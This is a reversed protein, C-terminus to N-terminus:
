QRYNQIYSDRPMGLGRVQQRLRVADERTMQGGATVLYPGGHGSPTFVEANLGAHKANVSQAMKEADEQRAYTYLIVRWVPRNGTHLADKAPLASERPAPATTAITAGPNPPRATSKRTAADPPTLTRTEWASGRSVPVPATPASSATEQKVTTRKPRAFWILALVVLLGLAAYIWTRAPTSRSKARPAIRSLLPVEALVPPTQPHAPPQSQVRPAPRGSQLSVVDALKCRTQPDPDLCRGVVTAFPVPLQAADQVFNPGCMRQTLTEFLTAGLCWIDAAPTVNVSNEPAVYRARTLEVNPTTNIRRICVTSLKISEGMALVQEPSVCGHVFGHGHLYQLGAVLSKLLDGTEKSNLARERLVGSLLEDARSLVVYILDAGDLQTWGFSLPTNLNAHKLEKAATWADMQEQAATANVQFLDVYANTGHAGLVRIKFAARPGDAELLEQIEYGGELIRGSLTPWNPEIIRTPKTAMTLSKRTSPMPNSGVVGM